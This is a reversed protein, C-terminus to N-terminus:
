KKFTLLYMKENGIKTVEYSKLNCFVSGFLYYVGVESQETQETQFSENWIRMRERSASFEKVAYGVVFLAYLFVFVAFVQFIKRM